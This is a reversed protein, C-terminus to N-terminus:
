QNEQAKIQAFKLLRAHTQKPALVALSFLLTPDPMRPAGVRSRGGRGFM